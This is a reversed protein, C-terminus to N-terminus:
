AYCHYYVYVLDHLCRKCLSSADNYTLSGMVSLAKSRMGWAYTLAEKGLWLGHGLMALVETLLDTSIRNRVLYLLPYQTLVGRSQVDKTAEELPVTTRVPNVVKRVKVEAPPVPGADTGSSIMTKRYSACKMTEKVSVGIVGLVYQEVPTACHTLYDITANEGLGHAAAAVANEERSCDISLVMSETSLGNTRCPGDSLGSKGTLLSRAVSSSLKCMRKVSSVLLAGMSTNQARNCLTWSHGIISKLGEEPSLRVDNSWNGNVCTSISRSVYGRACDEGYCVRLFEAAYVGVSQKLPNMALGAEKCSSLVDQAIEYSPASIYVDDGVHLSKLDIIKPYAVRIYAENLVTNFFTTCRHGSMMTGALTGLVEGGVLLTSNYISGILKDRLEDPYGVHACLEEIVIKMYSNRHRSNFDDYDLMVNVPGTKRMSRIRKGIKWTGIGGPDLIAKINKWRKEVPKMLHEFAFYTLSDGSYIARTKGCELKWSLSFYAKGDWGTIPEWVLREAFVRRHVQKNKLAEAPEVLDPHLREILKSHAGNVCWEWRRQWFEDIGEFEVDEPCERQIVRRIERRMDDDPLDHLVSELKKGGVRYEADATPHPIIAGRGQLAEAECIMSGLHTCNLGLSKIAGSLCKCGKPDRVFRTAVRAAYPCYPNIAVAFMIAASLQDDSFGDQYSTCVRMDECLNPVFDMARAYVENAFVNVKNTAGVHSKLPYARRREDKNFIDVPPRGESPLPAVAADMLSRITMNGAKVQVPFDMCLLSYACVSVEGRRLRISGMAMVDSEISRTDILDDVVLANKLFVGLTGLEEARELVREARKAYCGGLRACVAVADDTLGTKSIRSSMLEKLCRNWLQTWSGHDHKVVRDSKKSRKLAEYNIRAMLEARDEKGAPARARVRRVVEDLEPADIMWEEIAFNEALDDLGNRMPSHNLLVDPQRKIIERVVGSHTYQNVRHWPIEGKAARMRLEVAKADHKILDDIDVVKLGSCSAGRKFSSKGWGSGAVVLILRKAGARPRLPTDSSARFTRPVPRLWESAAVSGWPSPTGVVKTVLEKFHVSKFGACEIVRKWDEDAFSAWGSETSTDEPM